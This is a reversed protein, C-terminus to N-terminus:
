LHLPAYVSPYESRSIGVHTCLVSTDVVIKFGLRRCKSCFSFDESRRESEPYNKETLVGDYDITWEFKPPPVRELVRRHILLCGAGVMDAEILSGPQFNTIFSPKPKTDALMVPMIPDARRYYLGSIIDQGRSLLKFLADPPPIVDDDLFFLWTFNSQLVQQCAANRAHDFPMGTLFVIASQPPLQFDRFGQAWKTAVQERTLIAVLVQPPGVEWAGGL